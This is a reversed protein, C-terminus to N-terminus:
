LFKGGFAAAPAHYKPGPTCATLLACLLLGTSISPLHRLKLRNPHQQLPSTM